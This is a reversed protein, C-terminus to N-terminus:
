AAESRTETAYFRRITEVVHEAQRDTLEPYVPLALTERAARESEPFDGERHGLYAFCEQLHLPVPYYIECGVNREKLYAMLRDRDAVRIVFQNYIHRRGPLETPVTVPGGEGTLEREALLQRYRDANAKRDATWHDLHRLKISIVVAQLADFRFNGGILSHYYKPKSGHMRLVRLREAREADRTVVMGGDGAGGLNKSPFFSFCGYDALSGARHGHYEAGIAQAADEIVALGHRRAIDAIVDMEASQGYLDVPMIAKTHPTIAREIQGVDINYDDPRVDVFVPTAGTRAISGATAFFTYPTTIVEDGPGIDEAMLAILLADSGSSVGVAHECQCYAAIQEECEQVKPGLIFYQSEFVEDVAPLIEDKIQAYQAKLDLLPVCVDASPNHDTTSM